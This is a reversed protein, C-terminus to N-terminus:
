ASSCTRASRAARSRRRSTATPPPWSASTSRARSSAASAGAGSAGRARAAAQGADGDAARRDRRPVRHRGAATELLGAKAQHPAPSRAASTASCSARSCRDGVPGRLQPASLAKDRRPSHRHVEEAMVEKGVGTEGLILVSIEGPSVREVLEYLRRMPASRVVLRGARRDPSEGRLASGAKAVLRDATRGDQPFVALAIKATLGVDAFAAELGAVVRRAEEESREVLLAEFDGPGYIGVVDDARLTNALVQQMVESRTDEGARLRLLGFVTNTRAARTCEDELRGEFYGHAWIRWERTAM